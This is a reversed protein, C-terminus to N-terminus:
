ARVSLGGSASVVRSVAHFGGRGRADAPAIDHDVKDQMCRAERQGVKRLLFTLSRVKRGFENSLWEGAVKRAAAIRHGGDEVIWSGDADVRVKLPSFDRYGHTRISKVLRM